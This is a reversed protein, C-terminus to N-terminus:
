NRFFQPSPYSSDNPNIFLSLLPMGEQPPSYEIEIQHFGKSLILQKTFFNKKARNENLVEKNDISVVAKGNLAAAMEYKGDEKILILGKWLGGKGGKLLPPNANKNLEVSSGDVFFIDRSDPPPRKEIAHYINVLDVGQVTVSYVPKHHKYYFWSEDDFYSQRMNLMYYDYDEWDHKISKSLLGKDHYFDFPVRHYGTRNIFSKGDFHNNLYEIFKKNLPDGWYTTEFGSDRAGRVSGTFINYYALYYPRLMLIDKISPSLLLLMM